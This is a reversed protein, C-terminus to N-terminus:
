IKAKGQYHASASYVRKRVEQLLEETQPPMEQSGGQLSMSVLSTLIKRELPDSTRGLAYIGAGKKSLLLGDELFALTSLTFLVRDSINGERNFLHMMADKVMVGAVPKPLKGIIVSEACRAQAIYLPLVEKDEIPDHDMIEKEMNESPSAKMEEKDESVMNMGTVASLASLFLNMDQPPEFQDSSKNGTYAHTGPLMRNGLFVPCDNEECFFLIRVDHTMAQLLGIDPIQGIPVEVLLNFDSHGPIFGGLACSGATCISIDDGLIKQFEESLIELEDEWNM